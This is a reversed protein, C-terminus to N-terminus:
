YNYITIDARICSYYKLIINHLNPQGQWTMLILYLYSDIITMQCMEDQPTECLDLTTKDQNTRVQSLSTWTPNIPQNISPAIDRQQHAM